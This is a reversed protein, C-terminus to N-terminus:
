STTSSYIMKGTPVWRLECGVSTNVTSVGEKVGGNPSHQSLVQTMATHLVTSWFAEHSLFVLCLPWVRLETEFRTHVPKYIQTVEVWSLSKSQVWCSKMSDNLSNLTAPECVPFVAHVATHVSWTVRHPANKKQSCNELFSCYSM